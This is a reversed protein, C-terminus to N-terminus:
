FSTPQAIGRTLAMFGKQLDTKAIAIWRKDVGDMIELAAVLNGIAGAHNKINNINAIEAETLQRYGKIESM